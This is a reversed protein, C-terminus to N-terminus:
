METKLYYPLEAKRKRREDQIKKRCKPCDREELMAMGIGRHGCAYTFKRPRARSKAFVIPKVGRKGIFNQDKTAM